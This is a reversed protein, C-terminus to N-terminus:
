TYAHGTPQIEDGYKRPMTLPVRTARSTVADRSTTGASRGDGDGGGVFVGVLRRGGTGVM